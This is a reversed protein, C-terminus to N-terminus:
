VQNLQWKRCGALYRLPDIRVVRPMLNSCRVRLNQLNNEKERLEAEVSVVDRQVVAHKMAQRIKKTSLEAYQQCEFSM